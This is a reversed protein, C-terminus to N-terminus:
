NTGTSYVTHIDLVFIIHNFIFYSDFHLSSHSNPWKRPSEEFISM